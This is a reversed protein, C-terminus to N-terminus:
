DHCFLTNLGLVLSLIGTPMGEGDSMPGPEKAPDWLTGPGAHTTM